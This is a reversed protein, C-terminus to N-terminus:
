LNVACQGDEEEMVLYNIWCGVLEDSLDPRPSLDSVVCKNM